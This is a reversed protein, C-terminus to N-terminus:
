GELAGQDDYLTSDSPGYGMGLDDALPVRVLRGDDTRGIATEQGLHTPRLPEGQQPTPARWGWAIMTNELTSLKDLVNKTTWSYHRFVVLHTLTFMVCVSVLTWDM